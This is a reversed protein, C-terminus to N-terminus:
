TTNRQADKWEAEAEEDGDLIIEHGDGERVWNSALCNLLALGSLAWFVGGIVGKRVGIGYLLGGISPGISRGASSLSQAIGHMTGLVSPHPSANNVLITTAPLAFTRGTVQIFLVSCLALWALFGDKEAPPSSRSPVVSLYPVLVYALPFCYLFIRWSRVTGIKTNVIPYILLQISIGVIGLISMALGVDRPPMGMGGTFIFPLHQRFKPPEPHVPDNVPTSLFVSWLSNFTGLHTAMMTHTILTCIVNYTFIRRFPLSQKWRPISKKKKHKFTRVPFGPTLPTAPTLPTVPLMEMDEEESDSRDELNATFTYEHMMNIDRSRTFIQKIKRSCKRGLDEKHRLPGLTEHLGLFVGLAACALFGASLVNPAAYPFKRLWQNQGFLSPYSNAPDALLGGLIPGIIIGINFCMPLLLFARSQYKKEEVIESVMTKMVGINGNLAGGMTRFLMAQWFTKSFGFGLCSISTGLLGILLVVKRGCKESDSIRGWMMATLCQAGTFSSVMLGAQTAIVSDPLREDFSKLQYFMYAQLSTQVLPESLRALTLIILQSRHPLSRWTVPEEERTENEVVEQM